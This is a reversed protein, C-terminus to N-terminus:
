YSNIRVIQSRKRDIIFLSFRNINRIFTIIPYKKNWLFILITFPFDSSIKFLILVNSSKVKSIISPLFQFNDPQSIILIDKTKIWMHKWPFFILNQIWNDKYLCLLIM